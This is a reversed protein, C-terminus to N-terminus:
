TPEDRRAARAMAVFRERVLQFRKRLRASERAIAADDLAEGDGLFVRALDDWAMDRDVRLVLLEQDEPPLTARLRYLESRTETRLFTATQSRVHDAVESVASLPIAERAGRRVDVLANRALRYCWARLSCRWEFRALTKWLRECALSFADAAAAEDRALAVVFGYVEAGYTRIALTTAGAVDGGDVARRIPAEIENTEPVALWRLLRRTAIV